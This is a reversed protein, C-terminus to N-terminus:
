HRRGGGHGFSPGDHPGRFSQGQGPGFGSGWNRSEIFVPAPAYSGGGDYDPYYGPYYGDYGDGTFNSLGLGLGLGTVPDYYDLWLSEAWMERGGRGWGYAVSVSGHIRNQRAAELVDSEKLRPRPKPPPRPTLVFAIFENLKELQSETLRDLGASPREAETRRDVFSGPLTTAESGRLLALDNAVLRDLAIREADSLQALGAATLKEAPLRSTFGGSAASLSVVLGLLGGLLAVPLRFSLRFLGPNM